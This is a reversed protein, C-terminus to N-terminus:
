LQSDVQNAVLYNGSHRQEIVQSFSEIAAIDLGSLLGHKALEDLFVVNDGIRTAVSRHPHIASSAIGFPINNISFHSDFM